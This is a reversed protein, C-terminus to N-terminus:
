PSTFPLIVLIQHVYTSSSFGKKARLCNSVLGAEHPFPREKKERVVLGAAHCSPFSSSSHVKCFTFAKAICKRNELLALAEAHMSPALNSTCAILATRRVTHDKTTIAHGDLGCLTTLGLLLLMLLKNPMM